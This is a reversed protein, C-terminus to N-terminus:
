TVASVEPPRSTAACSGSAPEQGGGGSGWPTVGHGTWRDGDGKREALGVLTQGLKERGAELDDLDLM